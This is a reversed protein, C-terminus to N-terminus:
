HVGNSALRHAYRSVWVVAALGALATVAVGLMLSTRSSGDAGSAITAALLLALSSGPLLTATVQARLATAVDHGTWGAAILVAHQSSSVRIM